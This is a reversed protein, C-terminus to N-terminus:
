CSSELFERAEQSATDMGALAAMDLGELAVTDMGAFAAM